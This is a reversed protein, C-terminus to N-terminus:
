FGLSTIHRDASTRTGSAGLHLGDSQVGLDSTTISSNLSNGNVINDIAGNLYNGYSGFFKMISVKTNSGMLSRLNTNILVNTASQWYGIGTQNPFHAQDDINSYIANNIGQSYMVYFVPTKGEAQLASKVGNVRNQLISYYGGSIDTNYQGIVAGGQGTKVIVFDTTLTGNARLNALEVEWGWGGSVAANEGLYNNVGVNLAELQNTNNNWIRVGNRVGGEGANLTSSANQTGAGSEGVFVFVNVNASQAISFTIINSAVSSNYMGVCQAYYGSGNQANVTYTTGTTLLNGTASDHWKTTYSDQCGSSTLTVSQNTTPNAVNKAIAPPIISSSQGTMGTGAFGGSGDLKLLFYHYDKKDNPLSTLPTNKYNYDVTEWMDPTVTYLYTIGNQILRLVCSTAETNEPRALFGGWYGDNTKFQRQEIHTKNLLYDQAKDKVFTIGNDYSIESEWLLFNARPKLDVFSVSELGFTKRQSLINIVGIVGNYGDLNHGGVNRDWLNWECGTMATFGGIDFSYERNFQKGALTSNTINYGYENYDQLGIAGRDCTIKSQLFVKRNDLKNKVYWKNIEGAHIVSAVIHNVNPNPYFKNAVRTNGSNNYVFTEGQVFTADAYSSVEACPLANKYDALGKSTLSLTNSFNWDNSFPVLNAQPGNSGRQSGDPLLKYQPYGSSAVNTIPYNSPDIAGGNMPASYQSFIYGQSNSAMGELFALHKNSGDQGLEYGVEIDANTLGINSKNNVNDATGYQVATSASIGQNYLEQLSANDWVSPVTQGYTAWAKKEFPIASAFENYQFPQGNSKLCTPDSTNPNYFSLYDVCQVGYGRYSNGRIQDYMFAIGVDPTKRNNDLFNGGEVQWSIAWNPYNKGLIPDISNIVNITPFLHPSYKGIQTEIPVNKTVNVFSSQGSSGQTAVDVIVVENSFASSNAGSKCKASYIDNLVASNIAFSQGSSQFVGNKYWDVTFSCNASTLAISSRVTAPNPNSAITPASIIGGDPKAYSFARSDTATCNQVDVKLIYNGSNVSSPINFVIRSSTATITDSAVFTTGSYLTWRHKIANIANFIYEGKAVGTQQTASLLFFLNGACNPLTQIPEYYPTGDASIITNTGIRYGSPITFNSPAILGGFGTVGEFYQTKSPLFSNQLTVDTRSLFNGGRVFFYNDLVSSADTVWLKGSFIHAKVPRLTGYNSWYAIIQGDTIGQINTPAIVGGTPQATFKSVNAASYSNSGSCVGIGKRINQWGVFANGFRGLNSWTINNIPTNASELSFKTIVSDGKKEIYLWSSNGSVAVSALKRTRNNTATRSYFAIQGAEASIFHMPRNGATENNPNVDKLFAIVKGRTSAGTHSNVRCIFKYNDGVNLNYYYTKGQDSNTGGFDGKGQLKISDPTYVVVPNPIAQSYGLGGTMLMTIFLCFHIIKKM